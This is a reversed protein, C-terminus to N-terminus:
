QTGEGQQSNKSKIQKSYFDIFSKDESEATLFFQVEMEDLTQHNNLVTAYFVGYRNIFVASDITMNEPLVELCAELFDKGDSADELFSQNDHLGHIKELNEPTVQLGKFNKMKM